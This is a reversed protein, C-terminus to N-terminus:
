VQFLDHQHYLKFNCSMPSLLPQDSTSSSVFVLLSGLLLGCNSCVELIELELCYTDVTVTESKAKNTNHQRIVYQFLEEIM